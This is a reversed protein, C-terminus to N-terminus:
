SPPITARLLPHIYAAQQIEISTRQNDGSSSAQPLRFMARAAGVRSSSMHTRVRTYM